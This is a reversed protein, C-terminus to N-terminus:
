RMVRAATEGANILMSLTKKGMVGVRGAVRQVPAGHSAISKAIGGEASSGIVGQIAGTGTGSAATERIIQLATQPGPIGLGIQTLGKEAEEFRKTLGIDLQGVTSGKVVDGEELGEFLNQVGMIEADLLRLQTAGRLATNQLAQDPAGTPSISASYVAAADQFISKKWGMATTWLDEQTTGGILGGKQLGFLDTIFSDFETAPYTSAFGEASVYGTMMDDSESILEEGFGSLNALSIGGTQARAEEAAYRAIYHTRHSDVVEKIIPSDLTLSGAPQTDLHDYFASLATERRKEIQALDTSGDSQWGYAQL